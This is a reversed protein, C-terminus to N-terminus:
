WALSLEWWETEREGKEEEGRRTSGAQATSMQRDTGRRKWCHFSQIRSVISFCCSWFVQVVGMEKGGWIEKEILEILWGVLRYGYTTSGDMVFSVSTAPFFSSPHLLFFLTAYFTLLFSYFLLFSLFWGDLINVDLLWFVNLKLLAWRSNVLTSFKAGFGVGEWDM